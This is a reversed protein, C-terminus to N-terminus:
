WCVRAHRKALRMGDALVFRYIATEPSTSRVIIGSLVEHSRSSDQKELEAIEARVAEAFWSALEVPDRPLKNALKKGKHDYSEIPKKKPSKKKDAATKQAAKKGM